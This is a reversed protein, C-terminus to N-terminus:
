CLYVPKLGWYNKSVTGLRHKQQPEYKNNDYYTYHKSTAHSQPWEIVTRMARQVTNQKTWALVTVVESWYTSNNPDWKSKHRDKPRSGIRFERSQPTNGRAKTAPDNCPRQHPKTPRFQTIHGMKRIFTKMARLPVWKKIKIWGAKRLVLHKTKHKVNRNRKNM